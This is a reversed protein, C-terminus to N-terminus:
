FMNKHYIACNNGHSRCIFQNKLNHLLDKGFQFYIVFSHKLCPPTNFITQGQFKMWMKKKM